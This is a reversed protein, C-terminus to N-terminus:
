FEGPRVYAKTFASLELVAVPRGALRKTYRFVVFVAVPDLLEDRVLDLVRVAGDEGNFRHWFTEGPGPPM